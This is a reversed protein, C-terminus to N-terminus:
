RSLTCRSNRNQCASKTQIPAEHRLRPRQSKSHANKKRQFLEVEEPPLHVETRGPYGINKKEKKVLHSIATSRAFVLKRRALFYSFRNGSKVDITQERSSSSFFPHVPRCASKAPPRPAERGNNRCRDSPCVRRDANRFRSPFVPPERRRTRCNPDDREVTQRVFHGVSRNRAAAGGDGAPDSLGSM